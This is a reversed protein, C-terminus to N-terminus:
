SIVSPGTGVSRARQMNAQLEINNLRNSITGLMAQVGNIQIQLDFVTDTLKKLAAEFTDTNRRSITDM